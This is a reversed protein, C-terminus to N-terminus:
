LHQSCAFLCVVIKGEKSPLPNKEATEAHKLSNADFTEIKKGLEAPIKGESM